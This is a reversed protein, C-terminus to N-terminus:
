RSTRVSAQWKAHGTELYSRLARAAQKITYRGDEWRHPMILAKHAVLQKARCRSTVDGGGGYRIKGYGFFRGWGNICGITGCSEDQIFVEAMNFGHDTCRFYFKDKSIEKFWGGELKALVELLGKYYGSRLGLHKATKFVGVPRKEVPGISVTAINKIPKTM